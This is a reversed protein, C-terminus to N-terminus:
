QEVSRWRLPSHNPVRTLAPETYWGNLDPAARVTKNNLQWTDYKWYIFMLVYASTLVAAM